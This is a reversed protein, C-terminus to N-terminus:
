TGVFPERQDMDFDLGFVPWLEGMARLGCSHSQGAVVASWDEGAGVRQPGRIQGEAGAGLGLESRVNRGWCWLTGPQRIACAHGQGVGVELWDADTGVRTPVLGDPAIIDDLQGIQGEANAGWCWLTRDSAIACVTAFSASISRWGSGVGLPTPRSRSTRDGLGLQGNANNGWCWIAGLEDLACTGGAGAGVSRWRTGPSALTPVNRGEMDGVGLGGSANDGWCSLAGRRIACGYSTGLSLDDPGDVPLVDLDVGSDVVSTDVTAADIPSVQYKLRGCAPFFVALLLLVLRIRRLPNVCSAESSTHTAASSSPHTPAFALLTGRSEHGALGAFRPLCLRVKSKARLGM